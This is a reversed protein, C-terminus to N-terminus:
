QKKIIKVTKKFQKKQVKLFYVGQKLNSVAIFDTTITGTYISKGLASYISYHCGIFSM